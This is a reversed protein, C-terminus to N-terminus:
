QKFANSFYFGKGKLGSRRRERKAWDSGCGVGVGRGLREEPGACGVGQEAVWGNKRGLAARECEGRARTRGQRQRTAGV